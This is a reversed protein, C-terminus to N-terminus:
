VRGRAREGNHLIAHDGEEWRIGLVQCGAVDIVTAGLPRGWATRALRAYDTHEDVSVM